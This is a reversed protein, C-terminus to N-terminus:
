MALFDHTTKGNILIKSIPLFFHEPKSEGNLNHLSFKGISKEKAVSLWLPASEEM